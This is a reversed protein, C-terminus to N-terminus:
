LEHNTQYFFFFDITVYTKKGLDGIAKKEGRHKLNLEEMHLKVNIFDCSEHQWMKDKIISYKAFM